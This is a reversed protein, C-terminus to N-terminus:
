EESEAKKPSLKLYDHKIGTDEEKVDEDLIAHCHPCFGSFVEEGSEDYTIHGKCVSCEYTYGSVTQHEKWHGHADPKDLYNTRGRYSIICSDINGFEDLSIYDITSIPDDGSFQEPFEKEIACWKPHVSIDDIEDAEVACLYAIKGDGRMYERCLQCRDCCSPMKMHSILVSM